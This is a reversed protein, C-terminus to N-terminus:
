GYRPEDWKSGMKQEKLVFSVLNMKCNSRGKANPSFVVKNKLIPNRRYM